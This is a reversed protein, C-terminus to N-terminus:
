TERRVEGHESDSCLMSLFSAASLLSSKQIKALSRSLRLNFVVQLQASVVGFSLFVATPEVV